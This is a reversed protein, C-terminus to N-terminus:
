IGYRTSSGFRASAVLRKAGSGAEADCTPPNQPTTTTASASEDEGTGWKARDVEGTEKEFRWRRENQGVWPIGRQAHFRLKHNHAVAGTRGGGQGDLRTDSHLYISASPWRTRRYEATNDTAGDRVRRTAAKCSTSRSSSAAMSVASM